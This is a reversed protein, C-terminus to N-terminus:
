SSNLPYPRHITVTKWYNHSPWNVNSLIFETDNMQDRSGPSQQSNSTMTMADNTNINSVNIKMSASLDLWKSCSLGSSVMLVWGTSFCCCVRKRDLLDLYFLKNQTCELGDNTQAEGLKLSMDLSWNDHRRVKHVSSGTALCWLAYQVSESRRYWSLQCLIRVPIFGDLCHGFRV